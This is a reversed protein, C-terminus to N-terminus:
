VVEVAKSRLYPAHRSLVTHEERQEDSALGLANLNALDNIKQLLEAAAMGHPKGEFFGAIEEPPGEPEVPRKDLKTKVAELEDLMAEAATQVPEAPVEKIVEREVITQIGGTISTSDFQEFFSGDPRTVTVEFEEGAPLYAVMVGRGNAKLPNRAPIRMAKDTYIRGPTRGQRFHALAGSVIGKDDIAQFRFLQSESM